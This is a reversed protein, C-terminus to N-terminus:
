LYGANPPNHASIAEVLIGEHRPMIAQSLLRTIDAKFREIEAIPELATACDVGDADKKASVGWVILGGMSNSFASLEIGLNLRDDRNPEGTAHNAKTKFELAVNEQRREAVLQAVAPEGEAVLQDCLDRM